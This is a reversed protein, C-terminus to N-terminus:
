YFNIDSRSADMASFEVDQCFSKALSVAEKTM